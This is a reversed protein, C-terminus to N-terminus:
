FPSRTKGRLRDWVRGIFSRSPGMPIYNANMPHEIVHGFKIALGMYLNAGTYRNNKLDTGSASGLATSALGATQGLRDSGIFFEFNPSKVMFQTGLNLYNMDDYSATLTGVIQRYQFHNVFAASFDRYFLEKSAILTPTYKINSDDLWYSSSMSAELIANTNTVFSSQTNNSQLLQLATQSVRNELGQQSLGEIVGTNDFNGVRSQKNWHIFGLDKLNFQFKYNEDTLVSFGMSISAGPNRRSPIIDHETFGGPEFSARYNGALSLFAKDNARDYTINSRTVNVRNNVIGFLASLKLGFSVQEDIDTRYSMGVQHYAQYNYRVNFADMQSNGLPGNNDLVQVSEDSFVARGEARTQGFLGIETNSGLDTYFKLMFLYANFNVKPYNYNKQGITLLTPDYANAFARNKLASQSNGSLTFDINFNPFLINFGIRRSSDPIFTKQSPNEFGDYLTNTNYQSFQQAYLRPSCLVSFILIYLGFLFKNM